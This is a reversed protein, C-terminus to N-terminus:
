LGVIIKRVTQTRVTDVATGQRNQSHELQTWDPMTEVGARVISLENGTSRRNETRNAGASGTTGNSRMASWLPRSVGLLLWVINSPDATVSVTSFRTTRPGVRKMGAAM